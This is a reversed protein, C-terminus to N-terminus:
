EDQIKELVFVEPSAVTENKLLTELEVDDDGIKENLSKVSTLLAYAKKVQDEKLNLVSAIELPTPDRDLENRLRQHTKSIKGMLDHYHVPNRIIADKNKIARTIAQEIWYTAYTSFRNGMTVDFNSAAKYLGINGEQIIDLLSFSNTNKVYKKALSVVWRLNHEILKQIAKQDGKLILKGLEKEEEVTLLPIKEIERLYAKTSNDMYEDNMKIM